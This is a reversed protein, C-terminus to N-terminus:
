ECASRMLLPGRPVEEDSGQQTAQAFQLALRSASRPRPQRRQRTRQVTQGQELPSWGEKPPPPTEQSTALGPELAGIAGKANTVHRNSEAVTSTKLPPERPVEPALPSPSHGITHGFRRGWAGWQAWAEPPPVVATGDRSQEGSPEGSQPPSSPEVAELQSLRRLSQPKGERNGERKGETNGETNGESKNEPQSRGLPTPPTGPPRLLPSFLHARRPTANKQQDPADDADPAKQLEKREQREELSALRELVSLLSEEHDLKLETMEEQMGKLRERSSEEQAELARHAEKLESNLRASEHAQEARRTEATGVHRLLRGLLEVLHENCKAYRSSSSKSGRRSPAGASQSGAASGAAAGSGVAGGDLEAIALSLSECAHQLREFGLLPAGDKRPATEKSRWASSSGGETAVLSAGQTPLSPVAEHATPEFRRGRADETPEFRRATADEAAGTRSPDFTVPEWEPHASGEAAGGAGGGDFDTYGLRERYLAIEEDLSLQPPAVAPLQPPAATPSPTKAHDRKFADSLRTTCDLAAEHRAPAVLKFRAPSPPPAAAFFDDDGDDAEDASHSEVREGRLAELIAAIGRGEQLERYRDEVEAKAAEANLSRHRQRRRHQEAVTARHVTLDHITSDWARRRSPPVSMSRRPPAPARRSAPARRRPRDQLRERRAGGAFSLLRSM